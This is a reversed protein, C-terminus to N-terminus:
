PCNNKGRDTNAGTSYFTNSGAFSSPVGVLGNLALTITNSTVTASHCNLTIATNVSTIKNSTVTDGDDNVVIGKGIEETLNITFDDGVITNGSITASPADDYIGQYSTLPGVPAPQIFNGTVAGGVQSLFMGQGIAKNVYIQNGTVNVKLRIDPLPENAAALIGSDSLSNSITISTPNSNGNEVWIGWGPCADFSEFVVGNLKGFAGSSYYFGLVHIVRM